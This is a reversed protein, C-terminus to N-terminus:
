VSSMWEPRRVHFGLFRWDELVDAESKEKDDGGAILNARNEIGERGIKM